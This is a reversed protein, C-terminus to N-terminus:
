WLYFLFTSVKKKVNWEGLLWGVVDVAVVTRLPSDKRVTITRPIQILTSNHKEIYIYFPLLGSIPSQAKHCHLHRRGQVPLARVTISIFENRKM